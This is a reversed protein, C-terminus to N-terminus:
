SGGKASPDLEALDQAATSDNLLEDQKEKKDQERKMRATEREIERTIRAALKEQYEDTIHLNIACSHNNFGWKRMVAGVRKRHDGALEGLIYNCGISQAWQLVQQFMYGDTGAPAKKSDKWTQALFVQGDTVVYAVSFAVFEPEADEPEVFGCLVLVKEPIEELLRALMDAYVQANQWPQLIFHPRLFEAARRGEGRVLKFSSDLCTM